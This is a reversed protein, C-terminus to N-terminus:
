DQNGKGSKKQAEGQQDYRQRQVEYLIIGAAVSVNLSDMEGIQPIHIIQDVVRLLEPAVGQGESGILIATPQTLDIEQVATVGKSDAALVVIGSEKLFRVAYVLDKVRCLPIRLLAGSSRKVADANLQASERAPFVLADAGLVEASRSIAGFNGVDTVRDLIVLLPTTGQDFLHPVLDEISIYEVQARFAAVGQHNTGFKDLRERPVKQVPIEAKKCRDIVDNFTSLRDVLVKDISQGADLAEIVTHRGIIVWNAKKTM